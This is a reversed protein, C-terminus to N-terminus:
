RRGEALFAAIADALEEPAEDAVYFGNDGLEAYTIRQSLSAGAITEERLMETAGALALVDVEVARLLGAVDLTGLANHADARRPGTALVEAMSRVAVRPLVEPHNAFGWLAKWWGTVDRGSEEYRPGRENALRAAGAADMYPIGWGVIRGVLGPARAAIELAVAVGTHHGVLDVRELELERTLGIVADAYDAISPRHPLPDSMGHGPLDPAIVRLGHDSLPALLAEWMAHSSPAQHLLLVPAGSGQACYHLQRGPAGAYARECLDSM